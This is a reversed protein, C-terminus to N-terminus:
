EEPRVDFSKYDQVMCPEDQDQVNHWCDHVKNRAWSIGHTDVEGNSNFSAQHTDMWSKLWTSFSNAEETVNHKTTVSLTVNGDPDQGDVVSREFLDFGESDLKSDIDKKLSDTSAQSTVKAQFQVVRHSM